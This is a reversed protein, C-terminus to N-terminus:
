VTIQYFENRDRKLVKVANSITTGIKFKQTEGTEMTMRVMNDVKVTFTASGRDDSMTYKEITPNIPLVGMIDKGLDIATPKKKYPTLLHTDMVKMYGYEGYIMVYDAPAQLRFIKDFAETTKIVRSGVAMRKQVPINEMKTYYLKTGACM